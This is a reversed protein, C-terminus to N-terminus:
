FDSPLLSTETYKVVLIALVLHFLVPKSKL